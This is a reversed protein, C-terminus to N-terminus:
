DVKRFQIGAEEAEKIQERTLRFINKGLYEGSWENDSVLEWLKDEEEGVVEIRGHSRGDAARQAGPSTVAGIEKGAADTQSDRIM